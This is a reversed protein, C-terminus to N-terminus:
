ASADIIAEQSEAEGENGVTESVEGEDGDAMRMQVCAAAIIAM